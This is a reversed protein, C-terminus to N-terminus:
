EDVLWEWDRYVIRVQLEGIASRDANLTGNPGTLEAFTDRIQQENTSVAYISDFEGDIFTRRQIAWERIM